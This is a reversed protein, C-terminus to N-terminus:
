TLWVTAWARRHRQFDLGIAEALKGVTLRRGPVALRKLLTIAQERLLTLPGDRAAVVLLAYAVAVLWLLRDIAQWTRVMFRGLGWAKLTEFATEISWRWSYVRVVGTMDALTEAPLTTAVVLPDTDGNLPLLELFRLTAETYATQRGTRSFRITATVARSQCRLKGEQGRDWVVEGVMPQAALVDGLLAGAPCAATFVTFDTDVRIVFDRRQARQTQQAGLAVLLEKRGLGRDAVLITAWGLGDLLACAAALVAEEVKNQSTLTPHCNSFLARALPLLQKGKLVLGAWVDVYGTTTAVRAGPQDKNAGTRSSRTTAALRQGRGHRHEKGGKVPKRVRGVHEMHRGRESRGPGRSRKPYETPDLAVVARGRYTAVQAPDLHRVTAELVQTSVTAAPFKAVSLFYGLAMAVAKVSQAVRQGLVAQGVRVLRTSRAVVLGLVFQRWTRAARRDPERWDPHGRAQHLVTSFLTALRGRERLAVTQHRQM